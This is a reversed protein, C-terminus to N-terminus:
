CDGDLSEVFGITLAAVEQTKQWHLMHGAPLRVHAVDAVSGRVRAVDADTLMAGAAAEGQLLLVPCRIGGLVGDIDYGELWNCGVIPDLVQPDVHRLTSAFFRLAAADRVDGLRLSGGTQPSTTTVDALRRTLEAQSLRLQVLKAIQAFYAHLATNKIYRGLTDFPPDELVIGRVLKPSRAAVGAAVMAGLSHGYLVAPRGVARELWETADDVYDAVLYRDARDSIGHGRQDLAILDYTPSLHAALPLFCNWARLVGHFMVIPPNERESLQAYCLKRDGVHFTGLKCM